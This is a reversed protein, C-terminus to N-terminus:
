HARESAFPPLSAHCFKHLHWCETEDFLGRQMASAQERSIDLGRLQQLTRKARNSAQHGALENKAAMDCLLQPIRSAQAANFLQGTRELRGGRNRLTMTQLLSSSFDVAASQASVVAALQM